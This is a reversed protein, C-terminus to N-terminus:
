SVICPWLDDWLPNQQEILDFKDSRRWRKLRKERTIATEAHAHEEFYVLRKVHYKNTFGDALEERHQYIRQILNSTIGIYLVGYPKSALIYVWFRKEDM